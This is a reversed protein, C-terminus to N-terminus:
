QFKFVLEHLVNDKLKITLKRCGSWSAGTQWNYTFVNTSPDFSIGAPGSAPDNLPVATGSCTQTAVTASTFSATNTVFGGNGDPLKWRIPVLSGKAVLNLSPAPRVNGLFGDFNFTSAVNFANTVATTFNVSDKATVKYTRAGATKTNVFAGEATTGVCSLLSVDTCEFDAVVDQYFGYRAGNAPSTLTVQPPTKDINRPPSTFTVVNGARDSVTVQGTVGAGEASIILPTGSSVEYIGSLADSTTFAQSVNTKNWGNANPTPGAAGWVLAPPTADRKIWLSVGMGGARSNALCHFRVGESTTDATLSGAECGQTEYLSAPMELISWEVAVDSRYWDNNGLTGTIIPSVVPPTKDINIPPSTFSATNGAADTVTVSRSLGVGENTLALPGPESTSAVGSVADNVSFPISTDYNYWGFANPAPTPTSFILSPATADRKVTTSSSTTGGASTVSCTFTSAPTDLTISATGCGTSSEISAPIENVSWDVQVDGVYWGNSGLPGAVDASVVPPTKDISIAASTFTASNGANDTVTVSQTMGAGENSFALPSSESASAVGSTDDGTTFPISVDSGNWGGANPAPATAGFTLAPPTADRKLTVDNSSTGGASTATCTLTIGTTDQTVSTAGCGTKTGITSEPDTVSWTVQVDGTYWGAAGLAGSITPQIVPPTLDPIAVPLGSIRFVAPSTVDILRGQDDVVLDNPNLRFGESTMTPVGAITRIIGTSAEIWRTTGNIMFINGASDMAFTSANITAATAPGGDGTSGYTGTGAITTIIGTTKDIKRIRYHSYDLFVLNGAKDFTLKMPWDISASTAPGGDGLPGSGNGTGAITTIIGTGAAVKRIRDNFEDAFFFNGAADVAVSGVYSTLAATAPGGDGSFGNEGTGAISNIIGTAKNVRLLRYGYGSGFYVNGTKDLAVGTPGGVINASTAPGGEGQYLYYPSGFRGAFTTMTGTTADIRSVRRNNYDSLYIDGNTDFVWSKAYNLCADRPAVSEGCFYASGNGAITNILGTSGSVRRVVSQFGDSILLDGNAELTMGAISGFSTQTAPVGEVPPDVSQNGTGAYTAVLGTAADIRRVRYGSEAFFVNRAADVRVIYPYNVVSGAAPINEGGTGSQGNGAISTIVGTAATIKRVRNNGADAVYINNASDIAISRPNSFMALSFNGGDGAFGASNTGAIRQGQGGVIRCLSNYESDTYYITGASDVAFQYNESLSRCAAMPYSYLTAVLTLAGTTTNFQYVSGDSLVYATGSPAFFVRFTWATSVPYTVGPPMTYIKGNVPDRRLLRHAWSDVIYITGDAAAALGQPWMPAELAPMDDVLRGGAIREVTVTQASALPIWSLLAASVWACARTVSIKM